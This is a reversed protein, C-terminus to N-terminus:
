GHVTMEHWLGGNLNLNNGFAQGPATDGAYTYLPLRGSLTNSQVLGVRDAPGGQRGAAPKIVLCRAETEEIVAALTDVPETTAVVARVQVTQFHPRVSRNGQRGRINMTFAAEFDLSDYRLGLEAATRHVDGGCVRV